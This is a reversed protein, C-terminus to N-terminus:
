CLLLLLSLTDYLCESFPSFLLIALLKSSRGEKYFFIFVDCSRSWKGEGFCLTLNLLYQTM